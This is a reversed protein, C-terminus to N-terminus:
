CSYELILMEVGIKDNVKGTKIDVDVKLCKEVSNYLELKNFNKSQNTYDRVTFSPIGIENAINNSSTGQELLYKCQLLIKLQRAVMALIMLPAEKMLVMNNYIDLALVPNKEGIAAVLDFIKLELSKSCINEIDFITLERDESSIFSVLKNVEIEINNMDLNVTKLIKLIVEKSVNIKENKFLTEIWSILEKETIKEFNVAYGVQGVKKFLRNRKDVDSEVFVLITSQSLESFNDVLEDTENKKGSTFLGSNKVVVLRYDSFIPLTSISDLITKALTDNGIFNDYNMMKMDGLELKEELKKLYFNKLYDEEGFFLYVNEFEKKSIQEKLKKM